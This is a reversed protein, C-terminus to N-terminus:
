MHVGHLIGIDDCRCGMLREAARTAAKNEALFRKCLLYVLANEGARLAAREHVYDGRFGDAELFGERGLKLSILRLYYLVRGYEGLRKLCVTHADNRATRIIM